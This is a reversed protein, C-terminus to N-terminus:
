TRLALGYAITFQAPLGAVPTWASVSQAVRGKLAEVFGGYQGIGGSVLVAEPPQGFRNEFYDFSLQLENVLSEVAQKLASAVEPRLEKQALEKGVSAPDVSLQEAVARALKDGGWPIDRVLYPINERFIVLNSVSAGVNILAQTGNARQGNSGALYANALAIADVDMVGVELGAKKVWGLRREILEKKCAAILM